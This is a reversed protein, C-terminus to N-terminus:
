QARVHNGDGRECREDRYRALEKNAYAALVYEVRRVDRDHRQHQRAIMGPEGGPLPATGGDASECEGAKAENYQSTCLAGFRSEAEEAEICQQQEAACEPEAIREGNRHM